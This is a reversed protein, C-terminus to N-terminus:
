SDCPMVPNKQERYDRLEAVLGNAAEDGTALLGLAELITEMEEESLYSACGSSLPVPLDLEHTQAMQILRDTTELPIVTVM